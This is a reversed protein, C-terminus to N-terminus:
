AKSSGSGCQIGNSDITKLNNQSGKVYVVIFTIFFGFILFVSILLCTFDACQHSDQNILDRDIISKPREKIISKIQDQTQTPPVILNMPSQQIASQYLESHADYADHFIQDFNQTHSSNANNENYDQKEPSGNDEKPDNM